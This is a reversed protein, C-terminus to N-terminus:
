VPQAQQAQRRMSVRWAMYGWVAFYIYIAYLVTYFPLGKVFYIGTCLVDVVFWYYWSEIKKRATLWMGVFSLVTTTADWYPLSAGPLKGFLYGSAAIGVASIIALRVMLGNSSSTVPLQNSAQQRDEKKGKLWYYWGYANMFFYFIHLYFDQYLGANLFIYFSVVTYAIGAPWTWINERILLVVAALGFILGSLEFISINAAYQVVQDLFADIGQM